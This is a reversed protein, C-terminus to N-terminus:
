IAFDNRHFTALENDNEATSIIATLRLCISFWEALPIINGKLHLLYWPNCHKIAKWYLNALLYVSTHFM